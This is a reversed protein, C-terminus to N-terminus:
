FHGGTQTNYFLYNKYLQRITKQYQRNIPLPLITGDAMHFRDDELQSVKSFHILYSRSIRCFASDNLLNELEDLSMRTKIEGDLTHIITNHAYVEAWLIRNLPLKIHSAGSRIEIFRAANNMHRFCRTLAADLDQYSVPKVLYDAAKVSYGDLAHATSVTIFIIECESNQERICRAAQIGNIEAEDMYIDLLVLTYTTSSVQKLLAESSSFCDVAAELMHERLYKQIMDFLLHLTEQENDCIAIKM